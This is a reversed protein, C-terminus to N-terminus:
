AEDEDSEIMVPSYDSADKTVPDDMTVPYADSRQEEAVPLEHVSPVSPVFSKTATPVRPIQEPEPVQKPKPDNGLTALKAVRKRKEERAERAFVAEDGDRHMGSEERKLELYFKV